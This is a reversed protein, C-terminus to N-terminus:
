TLEEPFPNFWNFSRLGSEVHAVKLRALKGMIAGLLTSFTDGHVLVVGNRDKGFIQSHDRLTRILVRSMWLFMAFIGTVDPGDYLVIDPRKLNFNQHLEEMTDRHQGTAIYNYAIGAETLAVMVPAMKIMQA